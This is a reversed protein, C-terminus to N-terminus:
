TPKRSSILGFTEPLESQQGTGLCPPSKTQDKLEETWVKVQWAGEVIACPRNGMFEMNMFLIHLIAFFESRM